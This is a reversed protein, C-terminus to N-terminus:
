NSTITSLLDMSLIFNWGPDFDDQNAFGSGLDFASM